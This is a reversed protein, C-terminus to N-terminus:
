STEVCVPTIPVLVAALRGEEEQYDSRDELYQGCRVLMDYRETQSRTCDQPQDGRLGLSGGYALYLAADEEIMPLLSKESACLDAVEPLTEKIQTTLPMCASCRCHFSCRHQLLQQRVHVAEFAQDSVYNISIGEGLRIDRIAYLTAVGKSEDWGVVANPRCSHNVSSLQDFMLLAPINETDFSM